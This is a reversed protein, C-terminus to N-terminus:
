GANAREITIAIADRNSTAITVDCSDGAVMDSGPTCLMAFAGPVIELLYAPGDDCRDATPVHRIVNATHTKGVDLADSDWPNDFRQKISASIKGSPEDIRLIVVTITEGVDAIQECSCFSATWSIEPILVLLDTDGDYQCFLGFVQVSTVIVDVVQGAHLKM